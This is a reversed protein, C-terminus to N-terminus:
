LVEESLRQSPTIPGLDVLSIKYRHNPILVLETFYGSYSYDPLAWGIILSENIGLGGYPVSVNYGDPLVVKNSGILTSINCNSYELSQGFGNCLISLFLASLIILKM